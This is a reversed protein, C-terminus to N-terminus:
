REKIPRRNKRGARTKGLKTQGSIKARRRDRTSSHLRGVGAKSENRKEQRAERINGRHPEEGMSKKEQDPGRKRRQTKEIGQGIRPGGHFIEPARWHRDRNQRNM